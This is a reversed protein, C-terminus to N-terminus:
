RNTTQTETDIQKPPSTAVNSEGSVIGIDKTKEVNETPSAEPPSAETQVEVTVTHMEKVEVAKLEEIVM